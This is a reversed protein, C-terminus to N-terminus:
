FHISWLILLLLVIIPLPVGILFLFPSREMAEGRLAFRTRREFRL